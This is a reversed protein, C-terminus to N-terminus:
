LTPPPTDSSPPSWPFNGDQVETIPNKKADIQKQIQENVHAEYGDIVRSKIWNLVQTETLDEFKAFTAPDADAAPTFPTAGSFEGVNGDSDTGIKKWYTQCVFDDFTGVAMKKLSTLKWTYTIAM